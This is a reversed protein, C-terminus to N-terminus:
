PSLASPRGAMYGSPQALHRILAHRDAADMGWPTLDEAPDALEEVLPDDLIKGMFELKRGRREHVVGGITGRALLVTVRTQTGTTM